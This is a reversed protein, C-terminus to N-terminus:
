RTKLFAFYEDEVNDVELAHKCARCPVPPARFSEGVPLLTSKSFVLTSRQKCGQCYFPVEFAEIPTDPKGLISAVVTAQQIMAESVLGFKVPIRSTIQGLFLVWERVGGSNIRAVGGLNIVVAPATHPPLMIASVLKGLDLEESILGLIRLETFQSNRVLEITARPNKFYVEINGEPSSV